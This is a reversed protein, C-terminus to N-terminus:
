VSPTACSVGGRDAYALKAARAAWVVYVIAVCIGVVGLVLLRVYFRDDNDALHRRSRCTSATPENATQEESALFIKM